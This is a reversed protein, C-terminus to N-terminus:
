SIRGPWDGGRRRWDFRQAAPVAGGRGADLDPDRVCPSLHSEGGGAIQYTLAALREMIPPEILGEQKWQEVALKRQWEPVNPLNEYYMGRAMLASHLQRTPHFDLPADDLDYFRIALGVVFIVLVAAWLLWKKDGFVTQKENM